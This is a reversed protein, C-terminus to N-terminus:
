APVPLVLQGACVWLRDGEGLEPEAGGTFSGFAPLIAARPGIVFAPLRERLRGPGVLRAAPHLHGSLVYGTPDPEPHHRHVFPADRVPADACAIGLDAPPDGAHRDHNGRVLLLEVSAHRERWRRLPALTAAAERGARAHFLDGLIVLRTAGTRDLARTLRALDDATSGHPVPIGAARFTAGKGWHLDAVVLTRRAPWWLAREALLAVETGALELVPDTTM